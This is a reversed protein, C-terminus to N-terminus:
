APALEKLPGQSDGFEEVPVGFANLMNLYANCLPTNKPCAVHQGTHM